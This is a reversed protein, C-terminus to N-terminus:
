ELVSFNFLVIKKFFPFKKNTFNKKINIKKKCKTNRLITTLFLSLSFPFFYFYM